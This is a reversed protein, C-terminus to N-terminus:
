VADLLTDFLEQVSTLIRASAGYANQFVVLNALEEDLNVGTVDSLRAQVEDLLATNDAELNTARLALLGANGLFRAAFQGLTSNGATLEGAAAFNVQNVEIDQLALAGRQDGANLATTGVTATLDFVSLALNNPDAAIDERVAINSAANARQGEALGFARGFSVGTTGLQTNDTVIELSVDGRPPNTTFDLGGNADLSFNVFAGLGTINNLASLADGYTTGLANVNVTALERGLEDRVRFTISQGAGINHNDAAQVGTEYIGTEDAVILDNLGFFHSFGRGARESPAAPDDAVVVGGGPTASTFSFVGNNLAVTGAGGLGANVQAVLANFNAPPASDFDVTTRAVLNNSADTVAFTVIGSFNTAQAGDVITQKGSLSGPAPAISFQNQVANFEDAIRASLEGLSTSLDVLQQDRLDVLGRFIGTRTSGTIDTASSIPLLTEDDVRSLGIPPFFTEASVIGPPDYSLQTLSTDILPLGATTTVVVSGNDQRIVNIDLFQSLENLTSALQGELGGTEGGVATQAVLLPNLENIRQLNENAAVVAESIQLSADARLNQLQGQINNIQSLFDQVESITQQRRLIDAPNLVLEGITQFAQDIQATLSSDSAPDGLIGQLRDHFERQVRFQESNSVATRAATELFRDVVRTISAVGVGVSNGELVLAEQNVQLRSFGETNVNSINNATIRLQEQNTFLGTLSTNLIGNLAM